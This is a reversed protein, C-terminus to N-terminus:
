RAQTRAGAANRWAESRRLPHALRHAVESALRRANLVAPEAAAPIQSVIIRSVGRLGHIRLDVRHVLHPVGAAATSVAAPAAAAKPAAASIQPVDVQPLGRLRRLLLDVRRVLLPLARGGLRARRRDLLLGADGSARKRAANM